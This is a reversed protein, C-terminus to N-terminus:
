AFVRVVFAGLFLAAIALLVSAGIYAATEFYRGGEFLVSVDLSFTSFTTFAGLLGTVLFYKVTQPVEFFHAFLAILVGMVFSGLINVTLTGWPFETGLWRGMGVNVGHRMVAGLAGGAAISLFAYM